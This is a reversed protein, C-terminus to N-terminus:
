GCGPRPDPWCGRRASSSRCRLRALAKAGPRQAQAPFTPSMLSVWGAGSGSSRGACAARGRQPDRLAYLTNISVITDFLDDPFPLTANLDVRTFTQRPFKSQARELMVQAYDGGLYVTRDRLETPLATLLNGTGCAVDLIHKADIPIKHAVDALMQQYPRLALLSDYDHAYASWDSATFRTDQTRNM